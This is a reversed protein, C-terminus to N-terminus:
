SLKRYSIKKCPVLCLKKAGLCVLYYAVPMKKCIVVKQDNISWSEVDVEKASM